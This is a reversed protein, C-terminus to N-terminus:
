LGDLSALLRELERLNTAGTKALIARVQTRVTSVRAGRAAAVSDKTEGGALARAVEAEAATLKFLDRLLESPPGANRWRLDRLLVLARGSALSLRREGKPALVRPLPSILAAIVIANNADRLPVAGGAAGSLVTARVTRLLAASDKNHLARLTLRGPLCGATRSLAVAGGTGILQRAASNSLTVMLNADVVVVATGLANLVARELTEQPPALRARLEMARRLHPLLIQLREAQDREFPAAGEPRHLGIPMARGDALPVVTGVVYRLGLDRGFDNYFESELFESDPVLAGSRFITPQMSRHLVLDAARNTWLDVTRYHDRYARIAEPPFGSQYVLDFGGAADSTMLAASRAGVLQVLQRGVVSWPLGGLAADYIDETLSSVMRDSM